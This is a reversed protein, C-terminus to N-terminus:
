SRKSVQCLHLHLMIRRPCDSEVKMLKWQGFRFFTMNWCSKKMELSDFSIFQKLIMTSLTSRGSRQRDWRSRPSQLCNSPLAEQSALCRPKTALYPLVQPFRLQRHFWSLSSIHSTVIIVIITTLLFSKQLASASIPLFGKSGLGNGARPGGRKTTLTQEVKPSYHCDRERRPPRCYFTSAM